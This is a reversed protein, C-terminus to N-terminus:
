EPREVTVTKLRNGGYTGGEYSGPLKGPHAADPASTLTYRAVPGSGKAGGPFEFSEQPYLRVNSARVRYGYFYLIDGEAVEVATKQISAM